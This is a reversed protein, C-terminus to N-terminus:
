AKKRRPSRTCRATEQKCKCLDDELNCLQKQQQAQQTKLQRCKSTLRAQTRKLSQIGPTRQRAM